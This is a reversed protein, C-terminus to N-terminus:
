KVLSQLEEIATSRAKGAEEAQLLARAESPNSRARDVVEAVTHDRTWDVLAGHGSAMRGPPPPVDQETQLGSAKELRALRQRLQQNEREQDQVRKALSSNASSLKQMVSAAEPGPIQSPIDELHIEPEANVEEFLYCYPEQRLILCAFRTAITTSSGDTPIEVFKKPKSIRAFRDFEKRVVVRFKDNKVLRQVTTAILAVVPGRVGPIKRTIRELEDNDVGDSLDEGEIAKAIEPRLRVETVPNEEVHEELKRVRRSTRPIFGELYGGDLARKGIINSINSM